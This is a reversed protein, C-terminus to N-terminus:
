IVPQFGICDTRQPHIDAHAQCGGQTSDLVFCEPIDVRVAYDVVKAYRATGRWLANLNKSACHLSAADVIETLDDTTEGHEVELIILSRM